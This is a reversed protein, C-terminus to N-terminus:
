TNWVAQKPHRPGCSFVNELDLWAIGVHPRAGGLLAACDTWPNLATTLGSTVKGAEYATAITEAKRFGHSEGEFPVYAYPIGYSALDAAIDQAQAPPVVPDDLGQLLLVPCTADNM